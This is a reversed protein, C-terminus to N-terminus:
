RCIIFFASCQQESYMSRILLVLVTHGVAQQVCFISTFIRADIHFCRRVGRNLIGLVVFTTSAPGKVLM